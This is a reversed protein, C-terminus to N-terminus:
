RPAESRTARESDKVVLAIQIPIVPLLSLGFTMRAAWIGMGMVAASVLIQESLSGRGGVSRVGLPVGITEGVMAGILGGTFGCLYGGCDQDAYAGAVAGILGILFAGKLGGGVLQEHTPEPIGTQPASEAQPRVFGSPALRQAHAVAPVFCLILGVILLLKM